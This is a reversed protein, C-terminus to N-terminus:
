EPRFDRRQGVKSLSSEDVETPIPTAKGPIDVAHTERGNVYFRARVDPIGVSTAQGATPFVRLLAKEGAVLPVPFTQSQVTQIVYAAPPNGAVCPAIRRKFVRDLWTQFATDAPACLIRAARM